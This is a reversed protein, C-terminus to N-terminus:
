LIITFAMRREKASLSADPGDAAPVVSEEHIIGRRRLFSFQTWLGELGEVDPSDVVSIVVAGAEAEREGKRRKKGVCGVSGDKRGEEEGKRGM